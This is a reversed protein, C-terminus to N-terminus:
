FKKDKCKSLVALYLDEDIERVDYESPLAGHRYEHLCMWCYKEIESVRFGKMKLVKNALEDILDQSNMINM